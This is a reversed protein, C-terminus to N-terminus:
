LLGQQTVFSAWKGFLCRARRSFVCNYTHLSLKSFLLYTHTLLTSTHLTISASFYCKSWLNLLISSIELPLVAERAVYYHRNQVAFCASNSPLVQRKIFCPRILCSEVADKKNKLQTQRANKFNVNATTIVKNKVKTQLVISNSLCKSRSWCCLGNDM